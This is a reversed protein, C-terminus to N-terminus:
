LKNCKCTVNEFVSSSFIKMFFFYKFIKWLITRVVGFICSSVIAIYHRIYININIEVLTSPQKLVSSM